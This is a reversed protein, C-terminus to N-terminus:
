LISGPDSKSSKAFTLANNKHIVEVRTLSLCICIFLHVFVNKKAVVSELKKQFTIKTFLNNNKMKCVNGIENEIVFFGEQSM